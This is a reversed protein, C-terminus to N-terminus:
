CLPLLFFFTAGKEASPRVGVEGGHARIEAGALSLRFRPGLKGEVTLSQDRDFYREVQEAEVSPGEDTLAVLLRRAAVSANLHLNGRPPSRMTGHDLLAAVAHVFRERDVLGTVEDPPLSVKLQLGKETASSRCRDVAAQILPAVRQQSTDLRLMGLEDVWSDIFEQLLSIARDSNRLIVEAHGKAREDVGDQANLLLSAYVRVNALPGRIDHSGFSLLRSHAVSKATQATVEELFVLVEGTEFPHEAVRFSQNGRRFLRAEEGTVKILQAAISGWSAGRAAGAEDGICKLFRSNVFALNGESDVLAVGFPISELIASILETAQHNLRAGLSFKLPLLADSTLGSQRPGFRFRPALRSHEAAFLNSPLV